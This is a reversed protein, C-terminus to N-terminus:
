QGGGRVTGSALNVRVRIGFIVACVARRKPKWLWNNPDNLSKWHRIYVARSM